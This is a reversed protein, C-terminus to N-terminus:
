SEEMGGEKWSRGKKSDVEDRTLTLGTKMM